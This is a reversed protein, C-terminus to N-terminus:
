GARLFLIAVVVAAIFVWVSGGLMFWTVWFVVALVELWYDSALAVWRNASLNTM